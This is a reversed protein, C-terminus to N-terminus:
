KSKFLKVLVIIVLVTTVINTALMIQSQQLIKEVNTRLKNFTNNQNMMKQNKTLVNTKVIM